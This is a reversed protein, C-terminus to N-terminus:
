RAEIWVRIKKVRDDDELTLKCEGKDGADNLTACTAGNAYGEHTITGDPSIQQWHWENYTISQHCDNQAYLSLEDGDIDAHKIHLCDVPRIEVAIKGAPRQEAGTWQAARDEQLKEHYFTHVGIYVSLWALAGIGLAWPVLALFFRGLNRYGANVGDESSM